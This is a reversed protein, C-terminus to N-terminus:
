AIAARRAATDDTSASGAAGAAGRRATGEQVSVLPDTDAVLCQAVHAAALKALGSAAALLLSGSAPVPDDSAALNLATREDSTLRALAAAQGRTAASIPSPAVRPSGSVLAVLHVKDPCDVPVDDRDRRM